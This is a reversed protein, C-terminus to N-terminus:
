QARFRRNRAAAAHYGDSRRWVARWWEWATWYRPGNKLCGNPDLRQLTLKGLGSTWTRTRRLRM